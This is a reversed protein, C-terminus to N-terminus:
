TLIGATAILKAKAQENVSPLPIDSISNTPLLHIHIHPIEWGYVWICVRQCNLRTKLKSAVAKAANWLDSLDSDAMDFVYDEARKPIVLTHGEVRPNIDLFALHRDDEWVKHCPIEGAIIREFLTPM